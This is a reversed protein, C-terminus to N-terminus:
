GRRKYFFAIMCGCLLVAASTGVPLLQESSVPSGTETAQAANEQGQANGNPNQMNGGNPREGFVGGNQPFNPQTEDSGGNQSPDPMDGQPLDSSAGSQAADQPLYPPTMNEDGGNPAQPPQMGGDEGNGSFGPPATGDQADSPASGDSANEGQGETGVASLLRFAPAAAAASLSSGAQTSEGGQAGDLAGGSGFGGRGPMRGGGFGNGGPTRGGGFGGFGGNSANDITIETETDGVILTCTDGVKMQPTSVLVSSFSCPVQESILENGDADKVTVTTGAPASATQMLFGQPSTSDFGEAM